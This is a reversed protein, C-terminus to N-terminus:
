SIMFERNRIEQFRKEPVAKLPGLYLSQHGNLATACLPGSAILGQSMLIDNSSKSQGEGYLVICYLVICYLAMFHLINHFYKTSTASYTKNQAAARNNLTTNIYLQLAIYANSRLPRFLIYHITIYYHTIYYYPDFHASHFTVYQLTTLQANFACFDICPLFRFGCFATPLQFVFVRPM